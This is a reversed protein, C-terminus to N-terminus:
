VIDAFHKEVRRFYFAGSILIAVATLSSVILMPGPRTNTGLLAWRFGEIVGALPNIGYLTRWPEPLVSSPYIIPTFFMWMQTVFPIMYTVDRFRVNLSTLWLSTGLAMVTALLLLFPLWIVNWTPVIGFYLMMCLLVFFSLGFDVIGSLVTSIPIALRPFYVKKILQSSRVISSSAQSLTGAFYTWPLLASFCFIPYPAGESPMKALKGFLVTFVVMTFVPQIIAWAAGLMTQKYRVKIDRWAFFYILERYHWLEQLNISVWGQSPEIRLHTSGALPQPSILVSAGLPKSPSLETLAM